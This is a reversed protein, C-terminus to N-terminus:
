SNVNIWIQFAFTCIKNLLSFKIMFYNELRIKKTKLYISCGIKIITFRIAFQFLINM